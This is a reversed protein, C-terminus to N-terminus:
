RIPGYVNFPHLEPTPSKNPTLHRTGPFMNGIQSKPNLLVSSSEDEYEDRTRSFLEILAERAESERPRPRILDAGRYACGTVRLEVQCRFGSAM